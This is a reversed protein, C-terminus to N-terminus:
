SLAKKNNILPNAYMRLICQRLFDTDKNINSPMVIKEIQKQIYEEFEDREKKSYKISTSTDGNIIDSAIYNSPYLRYGKHIEKDIIEAIKDIQKGKSHEEINTNELLQNLPTGITIHVRGKYGNLGTIMNLGDDKRTKKYSPDDRKLQIEKAKLYDCPDYEYSCTTPIINLSKITDTLSLGKKGSLSLMKILAPQTRDDSDKARGERQAIWQSQQNSINYHMYESLEKAALLVNRGELNRRVIFSGNLKVLAEIWPYILLNDGIAIEPMKHGSEHLLINIFASDLIIDRHNSIFTYSLEKNLKSRGSAELSFCTNKAFHRVIRYSINKKFDQVSHCQSLISKLEDFSIDLSLSNFIDKIKPNSILQQIVISVEENKLPRIAKFKDKNEM